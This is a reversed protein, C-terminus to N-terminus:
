SSLQILKVNELVTISTSQEALVSESLGSYAQGLHAYALAFGPDLAIARKFHPIADPPGSTFYAKRATTYAQLAELSPTTAEELPMNYKEVTPLSEGVRVRLKGALDSLVRLVDEKKGAQAQEQDLVDGTRCNTARLGMVYQSGLKAISGELVAASSTRDCVQRAIEPTLRQNPQGMLRLTKQVRQDPLFSLFPSQALQIALGQNLTDDFVPEGTTNKWDALVMTDKDTLKKASMRPSQLFLYGIGGAAIMSTAITALVKQGKTVSMRAVMSSGGQLRQLDTHVESARQYRSGRDKELCKRIIRELGSSVAPNLRSPPLPDRNLIAELVIGASEGRFPLVGTAMEYLVVGFSFLDTRSDLPQARVQEPSMHSMTGLVSGTGTLSAPLTATKEGSLVPDIKALGFDLVKASGRSTVFLNAPKIDRHVIGAAHAADLADAIEIALPILIETALPKGSLRHHLTSGDLFEMALFPHGEHEGVDYITCINPHNLASAAQAERQFRGLADTDSVLSETLFKLAVSRHLRTDRAKYVVGMGGGGLKGEVLYPGVMEGAALEAAVLRKGEFAPTELFHAATQERAAFSRVERELDADGACAERLYTDREAPDRDLVSQLIPEIRKWRDQDM